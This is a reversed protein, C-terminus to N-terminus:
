KETLIQLLICRSCYNEKHVRRLDGLGESAAMIINHEILGVGLKTLATEAKTNMICYLTLQLFCGELQSDCM